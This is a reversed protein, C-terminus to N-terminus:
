AASRRRIATFAADTQDTLAKYIAHAAQKPGSVVYDGKRTTTGAGVTVWHQGKKWDVTRLLLLKKEIEAARANPDSIAVLDHGLAGIAALVAPAGTVCGDRDEMSPGLLDTVARWWELAAAQIAPVRDTPVQVAKAGFRVGGIGEALTICAGRLATITIIERDSPRLQRRVTNVRGTFFPVSKEVERAVHTLPDRQDMGIGLAANPRVALLNMDHFAQQAWDIPLGHTIDVAILQGNTQPEISSAEFRAALQTDGDIAIIVTNWGLQIYGLGHGEAEVKLQTPSYLTIPPTMGKSQGRYILVIYEAYRPVNRKKEGDFLRQVQSRLEHVAQLQSSRERERADEARRPDECLKLLQAVQVRALFRHDDVKVGALINGDLPDLTTTLSPLVPSEM